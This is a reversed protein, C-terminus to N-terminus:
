CQSLVKDSCLALSDALKIVSDKSPHNRLHRLFTYQEEWVDLHSQLRM